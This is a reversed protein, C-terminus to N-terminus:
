VAPENKHLQTEDHPALRFIDSKPTGQRYRCYDRLIRAHDFVLGGPLQCRDFIDLAAADDAAEPIGQAAAIFVTTVSHHRPDRDPASYCQFQEVLLVDLGTEEKAERLAATELPEGYDVFGGPLAWGRPPNKREILVVGEPMEIIIDVTLYPNRPLIVNQDCATM